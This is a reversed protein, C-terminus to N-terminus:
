DPKGCSRNKLPLKYCTKYSFYKNHIRTIVFGDHGRFVFLCVQKHMEQSTFSAGADAGTTIKGDRLRDELVTTSNVVRM